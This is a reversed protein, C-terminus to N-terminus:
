RNIWINKIGGPFINYMEALKCTNLMDKPIENILVTTQKSCSLYIQRSWIYHRLEYYFMYCFVAVLLVALTLHAWYRQEHAINPWAFRDLGRVDRGNRGGIYNLPLLTPLILIAMLSFFRLLFLLYRQFFYGDLGVCSTSVISITFIDSLKPSGLESNKRPQYVHLLKKRAVLFLLIEAAFIIVSVVLSALFTQLSAGAKKHAKGSNAALIDPQVSM